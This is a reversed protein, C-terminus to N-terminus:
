SNGLLAANSRDLPRSAERAVIQRPVGFRRAPPDCGSNPQKQLSNVALVAEEIVM